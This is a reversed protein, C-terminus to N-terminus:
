ARALKRGNRALTKRVYAPNLSLMRGLRASTVRPNRDFREIVVAATAFRINRRRLSVLATMIERVECKQAATM